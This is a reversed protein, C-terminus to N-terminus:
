KITETMQVRKNVLLSIITTFSEPTLPNMFKVGRPDYYLRSTKNQVSDYPTMKFATSGLVVGKMSMGFGSVGEETAPIEENVLCLLM